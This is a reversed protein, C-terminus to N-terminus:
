LIGNSPPYPASEIEEHSSDEDTAGSSSPSSSLELGADAWGDLEVQVRVMAAVLVPLRDEVVDVEDLVEANDLLLLLLLVFLTFLVHEPAIDRAMSRKLALWGAEM